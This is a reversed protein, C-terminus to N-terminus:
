KKSGAAIGDLLQGGPFFGTGAFLVSGFELPSQHFRRESLEHLLCDCSFSFSSHQRDHQLQQPQAPSTPLPSLQPSSYATLPRMQYLRYDTGSLAGQMQSALLRKNLSGEFDPLMRLSRLVHVPEQQQNQPGRLLFRRFRTLDPACDGYLSFAVSPTVTRRVNVQGFFM